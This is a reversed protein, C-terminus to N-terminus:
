GTRPMSNAGAKNIAPASATGSWELAEVPVHTANGPSILDKSVFAPLLDKLSATNHTVFTTPVLTDLNIM